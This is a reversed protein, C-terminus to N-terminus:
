FTMYTQTFDAVYRSPLGAFFGTVGYNRHIDRIAKHAPLNGSEKMRTLVTDAPQSAISSLFGACLWVFVDFGTLLLQGVASLNVSAYVHRVSALVLSDGVFVKVTHSM